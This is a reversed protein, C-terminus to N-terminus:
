QVDAAEKVKDSLTLGFRTSAAHSVVVRATTLPVVAEGPVTAGGNSKKLRDIVARAIENFDQAAALLAGEKLLAPSFALVQLANKLSYSMVDQIVRQSLISADPALWLGQINKEHLEQVALIVARDSPVEVHIVEIGHRKAAQMADTVMYNANRGTVVGVRRLSPALAKWVTFQRTLSPISSVGKM